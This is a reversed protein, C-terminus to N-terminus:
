VGCRAALQVRDLLARPELSQAAASTPGSCYLDAPWRSLGAAFGTSKKAAAKVSDVVRASDVGQATDYVIRPLLVFTPTYDTHGYITFDGLAFTWAATNPAQAAGPSALGLLLLLASRPRSMASGGSLFRYRRM